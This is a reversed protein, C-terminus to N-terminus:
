VRDSTCPLSFSVKLFCYLSVVHTSTCIRYLVTQTMLGAPIGTGRLHGILVLIKWVLSTFRPKSTTMRSSSVVVLPFPVLNKLVRQAASRIQEVASQRGTTRIAGACRADVILNRCFGSQCRIQRWRCPLWSIRPCVRRRPRCYGQFQSQSSRNRRSPRYGSRNHRPAYWRWRNTSCSGACKRPLLLARLDPREELSGVIGRPHAMGSDIQAVAHHDTSSVGDFVCVNM